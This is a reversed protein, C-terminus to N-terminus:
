KILYGSITIFAFNHFRFDHGSSAFNAISEKAARLELLNIHPKQSLEAPSWERQFYNGLSDHGGCGMMSADSWIHLNPPPERLNATCNSLFGTPKVWWILNGKSEQTLNIVKTAVRNPMKAVLLQKQLHRYNFAALPTVPRMSEM